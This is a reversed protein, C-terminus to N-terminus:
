TEGILMKVKSEIEIDKLPLGESESLEDASNASEPRCMNELKSASYPTQGYFELFIKEAELRSLFWVECALVTRITYASKQSSPQFFCNEGFVDGANLYTKRTKKQSNISFKSPQQDDGTKGTIENKGDCIGENNTSANLCDLGFNCICKIKGTFFLTQIILDSM